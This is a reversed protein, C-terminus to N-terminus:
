KAIPMGKHKQSLYSQGHCSTGGSTGKDQNSYQRLASITEACVDSLFM